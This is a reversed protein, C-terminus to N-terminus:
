AHLRPAAYFAFRLILTILIWWGFWHGIPVPIAEAPTTDALVIGNAVLEQATAPTLQDGLWYDGTGDNKILGTQEATIGSMNIAFLRLPVHLDVATNNAIKLRVFLKGDPGLSVFDEAAYLKWQGNLFIELGMSFEDGNQKRM